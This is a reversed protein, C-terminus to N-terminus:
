DIMWVFDFSIVGGLLLTTQFHVLSIFGCKAFLNMNLMCTVCNYRYLWSAQYCLIRFTFAYGHISLMQIFGFFQSMINEMLGRLAYQWLMIMYINTNGNFHANNFGGHVITSHFWPFYM